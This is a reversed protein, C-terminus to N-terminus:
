SKDPCYVEEDLDSALDETLTLNLAQFSARWSCELKEKWGGDSMIEAELAGETAPYLYDWRERVAVRVRICRSIAVRTGGYLCIKASLKESLHSCISLRSESKSAVPTHRRRVATHFIPVYSDIAQRVKSDLVDVACLMATPASM